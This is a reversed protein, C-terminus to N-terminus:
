LGHRHSQCQNTYGVYAVQGKGRGRGRKSHYSSVLFQAGYKKVEKKECTRAEVPM